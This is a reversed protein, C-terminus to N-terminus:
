APRSWRCVENRSHRLEFEHARLVSRWGSAYRDASLICMAPPDVGGGPDCGVVHCTPDMEKLRRLLAKPGMVRPDDLFPAGAHDAPDRSRTM